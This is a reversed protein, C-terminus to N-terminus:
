LLAPVQLDHEIGEDRIILPENPVNRFLESSEFISFLYRQIEDIQGLTIVVRLGVFINALSYGIDVLDVRNQKGPQCAL